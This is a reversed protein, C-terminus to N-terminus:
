EIYIVSHLYDKLKKLQETDLKKILQEIAEIETRDQDYEM